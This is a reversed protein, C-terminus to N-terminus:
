EMAFNSTTESLTYTIVNNEQASISKKSYAKNTKIYSSDTKLISTKM